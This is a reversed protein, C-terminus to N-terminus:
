LYQTDQVHRHHLLSMVSRAPTHHREQWWCLRVPQPLCVAEEETPVLTKKEGPAFHSHCSSPWEDGDLELNLFLNHQIAAWWYTASYQQEGILQATSSCVL